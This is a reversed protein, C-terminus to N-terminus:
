MTCIQQLYNSCGLTVTGLVNLIILVTAYYIRFSSSKGQIFLGPISTIDVSRFTIITTVITFIVFLITLVGIYYQIIKETSLYGSQHLLGRNDTTEPLIDSQADEASQKAINRRSRQTIM